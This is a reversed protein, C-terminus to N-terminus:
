RLEPLPPLGSQLQKAEAQECGAFRPLIDEELIRLQPANIADWRAAHLHAAAARLHDRAQLLRALTAPDSPIIANPCTLCGMFNTCLEGRRAGPAIGSYPDKCSFGFMTVVPMSTTASDGSSMHTNPSRAPTVFSPVAQVGEIRGLFATQLAGIHVRHQAEVEPGEVYRVTTSLQAHNAIGKVKRLDGTSRYVATLVSPRISNPTIPPLNHSAIFRDVLGCATPASLAGVGHNGKFLFLRDRLNAPAFPRLRATWALIERV